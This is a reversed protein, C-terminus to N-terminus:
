IAYTWGEISFSHHLARITAINLFAAPKISIAIAKQLWNARIFPCMIIFKIIKIKQFHYMDFEDREWVNIWHNCAQIVPSIDLFHCYLCGTLEKHQMFSKNQINYIQYLAKVVRLEYSSMLKCEDARQIM